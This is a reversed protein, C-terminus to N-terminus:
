ANVETDLLIEDVSARPKGCQGASRDKRAAGSLPADGWRLSANSMAARYSVDEGNGIGSLVTRSPM